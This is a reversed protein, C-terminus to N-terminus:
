GDSVLRNYGQCGIHALQPDDVLGWAVPNRHIYRLKERLKRDTFVNFDQFGKQWFRQDQGGSPKSHVAFDELRFLRLNRLCRRASSIRKALALRDSSVILQGLEEWSAPEHGLRERIQKATQRKINGVITRISIEEPPQVLMHFHDPMIVYGLLLFGHQKRYYDINDLFMGCFDHVLFLPMFRYTKSTM